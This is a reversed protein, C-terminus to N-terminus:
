VSEVEVYDPVWDPAAPPAPQVNVSSAAVAPPMEAPLMAPVAAPAAMPLGGADPPEGEGLFFCLDYVDDSPSTLVVEKLKQEQLAKVQEPTLAVEFRLRGDLTFLSLVGARLSLTHRDFYVPSRTSFRLLPLPKDGRTALNFPSGVGQYVIRSVRSVSYIANCVMQSGLAPFQERLGKYAMHHLAVRNWCRTQQVLPTLANCAAAFAAQLARLRALQDPAPHLRVRISFSM